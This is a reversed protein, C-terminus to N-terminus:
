DIKLRRGVLTAVLDHDSAATVRVQVLDGPVLGRGDQVEVVGDIEPADGQSRGLVMGDEISDILVEITTGVRRALRRASIGAQFELLAEQRDLKVDEDV